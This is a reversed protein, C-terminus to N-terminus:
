YAIKGFIYQDRRQIGNGVSVPFVGVGLQFKGKSPYIM